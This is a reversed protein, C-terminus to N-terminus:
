GIKTWAQCSRVEFVQGNELTATAVGSTINNDVISAASDTGSKWAYYCGVSNTGDPGNTRYVGPQVDRGVVYVGGKLQNQAIVTQADKVAQERQAVASERAQVSAQASAVAASQSAAANVQSQLSSKQSQLSSISASASAIAASQSSNAGKLAVYPTTTTPDPQVAATIAAGILGGVVLAGAVAARVGVPIRSLRSPVKPKKVASTPPKLPMPPPAVQHQPQPPADVGDSQEVVPESVQPEEKAAEEAREANLETM